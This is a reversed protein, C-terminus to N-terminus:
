FLLTSPLRVTQRVIEAIRNAIQDIYDFENSNIKWIVTTIIKVLKQTNNIVNAKFTEIEEKAARSYVSLAYSINQQRGM